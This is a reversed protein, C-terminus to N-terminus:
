AFAVAPIRQMKSDSSSLRNTTDPWQGVRMQLWAELTLVRQLIGHPQNRRHPTSAAAEIAAILAAPDILGLDALISRRVLPALLGQQKVLSRALLGIETGKGVRTRVSEPLIDRMGNRLIAKRACPQACLEPPLRLVFELLPRYLFPHRVDLEDSLVGLDLVKSIAMIGTVVMDHYKHGWRGGYMQTDFHRDRLGHQRVAESSIWQPVQMEDRVAHVRLTRPLLPLVGNRYLIEWGSVRGIAAWTAMQRIATRVRGRVLWDAFFLMNGTLTEDSGIGTLLIRGGAGRVIACLRSDRPFFMFDPRPQDIYPPAYQDDHWMPAEIIKENRIGWRRAVADSYEREDAATGVCDVHTVTGALGETVKGRELLWQAISVVSSSDLGGSLHSWTEGAHGLRLRVSEALLDRFRAAADEASYVDSQALDYEPPSWCQRLVLQERDLVAMTAAPVTRVGVFPTLGSSPVCGAAREAFYQRDYSEECALCEARSAFVLADKRNVYYLHKAAVVDCAAILSHSAAEWAVFAFDGLINSIYSGGHRAIARLVLTLDSLEHARCGADRALEARNDLRVMGVALWGDALVIEPLVGGGDGGNLVAAHRFSHWKFALGRARPLSEYPRRFEEPVVENAPDLVCVFFRM